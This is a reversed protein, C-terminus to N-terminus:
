IWFNRAADVFLQVTKDDFGLSKLDEVFGKEDQPSKGSYRLSSARPRENRYKWCEDTMPATALPPWHNGNREFHRATWDLDSALYLVIRHDKTRRGVTKYLSVTGTMIRETEM